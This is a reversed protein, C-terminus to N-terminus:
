LTNNSNTHEQVGPIKKAAAAWGAVRRGELGCRLSGSTGGSDFSVWGLLARGLKAGAADDDADRPFATLFPFMDEEKAKFAHGM